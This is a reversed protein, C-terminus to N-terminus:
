PTAACVGLDDWTPHPPTDEFWPVCQQGPLCPSDDGVTCYATCCGAAGVCGPVTAAGTCLLGPDCANVFECPDGIAGADGSADPGCVFSYSNFSVCVEGPDCDDARPDCVEFCWMGVSADGPINCLTDPDDCTPDPGGGTCYAVCQGELTRNDVDWCVAGVPCDDLGSGVGGIATCTEGVEVPDDVVPFCGWSWGLSGSGTPDYVICKLGAPCDQTLIDCQQGIGVDPEDIFGGHGTDDSGEDAVATTTGTPGGATTSGLSTATVAGATPGGGTSSGAAEGTSGDPRTPIATAPGCGLGLVAVAM